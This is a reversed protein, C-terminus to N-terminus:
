RSTAYNTYNVKIGSIKEFAGIVDLSEESGNSIYEGWNYVNITLNRDRFKEYYSIDDVNVEYYAGSTDESEEDTNKSCSTFLFSSLMLVPVLIFAFFRKM